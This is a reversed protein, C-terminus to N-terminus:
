SGDHNRKHRKEIAEIAEVLNESRYYPAKGDPLFADWAMLYPRYRLLGLIEITPRPMGDAMEDWRTRSYLLFQETLPDAGHQSTWSYTWNSM